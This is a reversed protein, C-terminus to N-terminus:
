TWDISCSNNLVSVCPIDLLCKELHDSFRITDDLELLPIQIIM